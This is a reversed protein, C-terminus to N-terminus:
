QIESARRVKVYMRRSMETSKSYSKIAVAERM